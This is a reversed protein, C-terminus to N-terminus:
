VQSSPHPVSVTPGPSVTIPVVTPPGTPNEGHTPRLREPRHRLLRKRFTKAHKIHYTNGELCKVVIYPGQWCSQLKSPYGPRPHPPVYMIVNLRSALPSAVSPSNAPAKHCTTCCGIRAHSSSLWLVPLIALLRHCQPRSEYLSVPCLSDRFRM